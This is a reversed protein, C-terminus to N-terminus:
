LGFLRMAELLRKAVAPSPACLPERVTPGTKGMRALMFKAPIPNSEWFCAEVLPQLRFHMVRAELWNGKLAASVEAKVMGPLLNAVVSIVGQAGLAMMPVTLADDGCLVPLGCLGMVKSASDMGAAEKTAVIGRVGSLRATTEPALTVATRSPVNYLVIPLGGERAIRRYHLFLGQQSPKNYYPTVVLAADAGARRADRTLAVAAETSNSGTGAFVPVRGHARRVVRQVVQFRETASLTVAEGTTGCPVIGDTGSAIQWDVLADLRKFDVSGDRLFPTVLAVLSGRIM